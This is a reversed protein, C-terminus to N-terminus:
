AAHVLLGLWVDGGDAEEAVANNLAKAFPPNRLNANRATLCQVTPDLAGGQAVDDVLGALDLRQVRHHAHDDVRAEM